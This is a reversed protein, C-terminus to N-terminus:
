HNSNVQSILSSVEQILQPDTAQKKAKELNELAKEKNGTKMYSEGLLIQAENRKPNITLVKEFREIAKEFQGSKISLVGLNFQANEHEPNEKVVSLGLLTASWKSGSLKEWLDHLRYNASFAEVDKPLRAAFGYAARLATIDASPVAPTAAVKAPQPAPDAPATPPQGPQETTKKDAKDVKDCATFSTAVALAAVPALLTHLRRLKM